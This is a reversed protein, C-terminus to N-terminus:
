QASDQSNSGGSEGLAAAMEDLSRKMVSDFQGSALMDDLRGRALKRTEMSNRVIKAIAPQDYKLSFNEVESLLAYSAGTAIGEGQLREEFDDASVELEKAQEEILLFVFALQDTISQLVNLLDNPNLLDQGLKERLRRTKALSLSITWKQGENDKFTEM